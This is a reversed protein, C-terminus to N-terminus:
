LLLIILFKAEISENREVLSSAYQLNPQQTQNHIIVNKFAVLQKSM